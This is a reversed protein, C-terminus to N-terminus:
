LRPSKRRECLVTKKGCLKKSCFAVKRSLLGEERSYSLSTSCAEQCSSGTKWFGASESQHLSNHSRQQKSSATEEGLPLRITLRQLSQRFFACGSEDYTYCTIQTITRLCFAWCSPSRIAQCFAVLYPDRLCRSSVLVFVILLDCYPHKACAHSATVGGRNLFSPTTRAGRM